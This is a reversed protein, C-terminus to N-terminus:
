DDEDSLEVPPPHAELWPLATAGSGTFVRTEVGDLGVMSLAVNDFRTLMPVFWRLAEIADRPQPPDPSPMMQIALSDHDLAIRADPFQYHLHAPREVVRAMTAVVPPLMHHCLFPSEIVVAELEAAIAFRCLEADALRPHQWRMRRCVFRAGRVADADVDLHEDGVTVTVSRLAFRRGRVLRLVSAPVELDRLVTLPAYRLLGALHESSSTALADPHIRLSEVTSWAAVRHIRHWDLRTLAPPAAILVGALFGDRFDIGSRSTCTAIPGLWDRWHADLLASARTADVKALQLAIFDGRPDGAAQLADAYISRLERDSPAAHIQALLADTNM